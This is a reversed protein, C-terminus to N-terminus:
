VPNEVSQNQADENAAPEGGGFIEPPLDSMSRRVAGYVTMAQMLLDLPNFSAAAPAAAPVVTGNSTQIEVIVRQPEGPQGANGGAPAMLRGVIAGAGLSAFCTAWPNSLVAKRLMNTPKAAEIKEAVAHTTAEVKNAVTQTTAEVGKEIRCLAADRRRREQAIQETLSAPM